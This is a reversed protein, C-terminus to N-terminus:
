EGTTSQSKLEKVRKSYAAKASFVKDKFAQRLARMEAADMRRPKGLREKVASLAYGAKVDIPKGESDTGLAVVGDLVKLETKEGDAEIALRTGKVASVANTTVIRLRTGVQKKVLALLSGKLLQLVQGPGGQSGPERVSFDSNPGLRLVSGDVLLLSAAADEGSVLRAGARLPAGERLPAGQKDDASSFHTVKPRVNLTTAQKVDALAVHPAWLGACVALSFIPFRLTM